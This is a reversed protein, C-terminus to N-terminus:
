INESVSATINGVVDAEVMESAVKIANEIALASSSGHSIICVGKVGLLM